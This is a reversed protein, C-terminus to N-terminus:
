NPKKDSKTKERRKIEQKIGTKKPKRPKMELRDWSPKSYFAQNNNNNGNTLRITIIAIIKPVTAKNNRSSETDLPKQKVNQTGSTYHNYRVHCKNKQLALFPCSSKL